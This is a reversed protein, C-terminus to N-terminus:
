NSSHSHGSTPRGNVFWRDTAAPEAGDRENSNSPGAARRLRRNASAAVESAGTTAALARPESSPRRPQLTLAPQRRTPTRSAASVARAATFPQEAFGGAAGASSDHSTSPQTVPAVSLRGRRGGGGGGGARANTSPPEPRRPSVGASATAAGGGNGGAGGQIAAAARTVMNQQDFSFDQKVLDQLAVAKYFKSFDSFDVLTPLPTGRPTDPFLLKEVDVRSMRKAEGLTLMIFDTADTRDLVGFHDLDVGDFFTRLAEVDEMSLPIDSTKEKKMRIMMRKILREADQKSQSIFALRRRRDLFTSSRKERAARIADLMQRDEPQEMMAQADKVLQTLDGGAPAADTSTEAKEAPDRTTTVTVRVRDVYRTPRRGEAAAAKARAVKEVVDRMQQQVHASEQYAGGRTYRQFDPDSTFGIETLAYGSVLTPLFPFRAFLAENAAQKRTSWAVLHDAVRSQAACSDMLQRLGTDEDLEEATLRAWRLPLDRPNEAPDRRTALRRRREQRVRQINAARQEAPELPTAARQVIWAKLAKELEQQRARLLASSQNTAAAYMGLDYHEFVYDMPVSAAEVEELTVPRALTPTLATLVEKVLTQQEAVEAAEPGDEPVVADLSYTPYKTPTSLPPTVVAATKRTKAASASRTRKKSESNAASGSRAVPVEPTKKRMVTEEPPKSISGRARARSTSPQPSGQRSKAASSARESPALPRQDELELKRGAAMATQSPAATVEVQPKQESRQEDLLGVTVEPSEGTATLSQRGLRSTGRRRTKTTVVPEPTAKASAVRQRATAATPTSKIGRAALRPKTPVPKVAMKRRQALPPQPIRKAASHTRSGEAKDALTPVSSELEDIDHEVLEGHVMDPIASVFATSTRRARLRKKLVRKKTKRGPPLNEGAQPSLGSADSSTAMTESQPRQSADVNSVPVVSSSAFSSEAVDVPVIRGDEKMVSAEMVPVSEATASGLRQRPGGSRRRRQPGGMGGEAGSSAPGAAESGVPMESLQVSGALSTHYEDEKIETFVNDPVADMDLRSWSMGRKKRERSKRRKVNRSAADSTQGADDPIDEFTVFRRRHHDLRLQHKWRRTLEEGSLRRLPKQAAATCAEAAEDVYASDEILEVSRKREEKEISEMTDVQHPSALLRQRQKELQQFEEDRNLAPNVDRVSWPYRLRLSTLEHQLDEAAAKYTTSVATVLARDDDSVSPVKGGEHEAVLADRERVLLNHVDLLPVEQPWVGDLKLARLRSSVATNVDVIRLAQEEARERLLDEYIRLKERDITAKSLVKRWKSLYSMFISDDALSLQRLPVGHIDNMEIFPHRTRVAEDEEVDCVRRGKARAAAEHYTQLASEADNEYIGASAPLEIDSVLMGAVRQPLHPFRRRRRASEDRKDAALKMVHAALAKEADTIEAAPAIDKRAREVEAAMGCFVVDQLAGIEGLHTGFIPEVPLFPFRDALSELDMMNSTEWVAEEEARRMVWDRMEKELKKQAVTKVHPRQSQTTSLSANSLVLSSLRSRQGKQPNLLGSSDETASSRRVNNYEAYMAMFPVDRELHLRQLSVQLEQIDVFRYKDRQANEEAIHAAVRESLRTRMAEERDLVGKLKARLPGLLDERQSALRMFEADSELGLEEIPVGDIVAPLFPYRDRLESPPKLLKEREAALRMFEDDEDLHLEPLLVSMYNSTKLFPFRRLIANSRRQGSRQQRAADTTLQRLRRKLLESVCRSGSGHGAATFVAKQRQLFLFYSDKAAKAYATRAHAAYTDEDTWSDAGDDDIFDGEEDPFDFLTALVRRRAQRRSWLRHKYQAVDTTFRLRAVQNGPKRHATALRLEAEAACYNNLADAVCRDDGILAVSRARIDEEVQVLTPEEKVMFAAWDAYAARLTTLYDDQEVSPNVDRVCIPNARRLRHLEKAVDAEAELYADLLVNGRRRMAKKAVAEDDDDCDPNEMVDLRWEVIEEDDPIHLATFVVGANRRQRPLFRRRGKMEAAVVRGALEAVRERLEGEVLEVAAFDVTSAGRLRLRRRTLRQVKRDMEIGVERLPILSVDSYRLFPHRARLAEDEDIRFLEVAKVDEAIARARECALTELVILRTANTRPNELLVARETALAEFTRDGKLPLDGVLVGAIRKPLFPYQAQTDVTANVKAEGLRRAVDTLSREMVKVASDKTEPDRRMDELANALARFEPDELVGAEVLPIGAVPEEPLFPFREHLGEADVLEHRTREAEDEAVRRALEGIAKELRKAEPGSAAGPDKALEQLQALLPKVDPDNAIDLERLTVGGPLAGVYPMLTALAEDDRAHQAVLESARARMKQEVDAVALRSATPTAKLTARETALATFAEDDELGVATLMEGTVTSGLFPYRAQLAAEARMEAAHVRAADDSLQHARDKLQEEVCRIADANAAEDEAVLADRLAVLEQYYPDNKRLAAVHRSKPPLTTDEPQERVEGAEEVPVEKADLMRGRRHRQRRNHYDDVEGNELAVDNIDLLRPPNAPRRRRRRGSEVEVGRERMLDEVDVLPATNAVPDSLLGARRAALSAFMADKGVAETVERACMPYQKLVAARAQAGEREAKADENVLEQVRVAAAEDVARLAAADPKPQATLAARQQALQVLKADLPLFLSSLTAAGPATVVTPYTARLGEEAALKADAIEAAREKLRAEVAALEEANELPQQKLELRRDSLKAYEPDRTLALERLPVGRVDNRPLFPNRARVEEDAAARLGDVNNREVAVERARAKAAEEIARLKSANARPSGLLPAREAMLAQFTEDSELPLDGVFVGAIRKPLFPHKAQAEETARLKGAAVEAARGALAEEAARLAEPATRPRKRLDELANALARFEPDELVGAEVLPIGAVPEEPLFPFREHLGEADVLEHRTREAEDEAVRRALEGIAKELRKAEPGSAAGPDKALEQLQALLPKVDPDNAIDLERLTVGGPLAGVYPMLTALAEDDRAHQAVLESARARMKQEVDAVALRSATPTAKLTARETALATFAEDDELGVATLMEGTVTSGLFPYRAQLAAEARMEAAHVRAADDSLQHARDKLQEEVCRIADANAAEDEAVLADRLAVLEQYYPDNKRLAAVHRSKPPLTTDEPQERVEGAEEVPVEKADLMRGRRHRQRRNHYDDVEGNELAVDNIDLLRPPNAPRRRRRRGSEVEVGRERMLDEVDVLPATNAVPDSLLGARRAALSAFMADKGVAETVERACMPYQKLVAARAQAGEREAKADENVLEQVRVAAAEDVARLAAADPKPQATLAARQQALQVLKADLPLFLSSLTAAGPATVVTPYTARLGEEAALKADAIEAAREKLRAEVAALEEANELPQQKLELRRDSLKAYEPDRTLALERLPVGRVDNRPLFPNRARVEEDAAARLGDVNNREVAVERARAKAAEEIARLKSANARPSGLLPAREAM